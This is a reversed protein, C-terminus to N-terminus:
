GNPRVMRCIFQPWTLCLSAFNGQVTVIRLFWSNTATPVSMLLWITTVVASATLSDSAELNRTWCTSSSEKWDLDTIDFNIWLSKLLNSSGKLLMAKSLNDSGKLGFRYRLGMQRISSIEFISVWFQMNDKLDFFGCFIVELWSQWSTSFSVPTVSKPFKTRSLVKQVSLESSTFPQVEVPLPLGKIHGILRVLFWYARIPNALQSEQSSSLDLGSSGPM